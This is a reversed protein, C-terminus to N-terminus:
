IGLGFGHDQGHDYHYDRSHDIAQQQQEAFRQQEALHQEVIWHTRRVDEIVAQHRLMAARLQHEATLEDRRASSTEANRGSM